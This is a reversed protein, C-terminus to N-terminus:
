LELRMHVLEQFGASSSWYGRPNRGYEEFGARRYLSMARENDVVVDLELQAYGARRACDVCAETLVRGIGMGWYEQLVSIGFRARHVVKRRSGVAEVGASGVIRGDVIAVLEVQNGCRETEELLRVEREEDTGQEDPYSLLYDTESHTRRMTERLARADSAVANRVLLEVGGTLAVMAAYRM